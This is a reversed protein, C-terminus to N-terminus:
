FITGIIVGLLLRNLTLWEVLKYPAISMEQVPIQDSVFIDDMSVSFQDLINRIKGISIGDDGFVCFSDVDCPNPLIKRYCLNLKQSIILTRSSDSIAWVLLRHDSQDSLAFLYDGNVSFSVHVIAALLPNRLTFKAAFNETSLVEVEADPFPSSVAILRKEQHVSFNNISREVKWIMDRPGKTIDHVCISKGSIYAFRESDLFQLDQGIYGLSGLVDM